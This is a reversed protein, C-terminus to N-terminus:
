NTASKDVSNVVHLCKSSLVQNALRPPLIAM